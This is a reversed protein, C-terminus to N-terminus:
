ATLKMLLWVVFARSYFQPYAPLHYVGTSNKAKIVVNTVQPWEFYHGFDKGRAM